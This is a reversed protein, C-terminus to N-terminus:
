LRVRKLGGYKRLTVKLCNMGSTNVIDCSPGLIRYLRSTNLNLLMAVFERSALMMVKSNIHKFNSYWLIFHLRNRQNLISLFGDHLEGERRNYM